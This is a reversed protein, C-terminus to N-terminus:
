KLPKMCRLKGSKDKRKVKGDKCESTKKKAPSNKPKIIQKIREGLEKQNIKQNLKKNLRDLSNIILLADEDKHTDYIQISYGEIVDKIYDNVVKKIETISM